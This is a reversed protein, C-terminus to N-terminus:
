VVSARLQRTWRKGFPFSPVEEGNLVGPLVLVVLAELPDFTRDIRKRNSIRRAGVVVSDM